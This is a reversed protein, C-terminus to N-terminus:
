HNTSRNQQQKKGVKKTSLFVTIRVTIRNNQLVTLFIIYSFLNCNLFFWWRSKLFILFVLIFIIEVIWLWKNLYSTPFDCYKHQRASCAFIGSSLLSSSIQVRSLCKSNNESNVNHHMLQYTTAWEFKHLWPSFVSVLKSVVFSVNRENKPMVPQHTSCAKLIYFTNSSSGRYKQVLM